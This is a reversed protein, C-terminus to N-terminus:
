FGIFVRPDVIHRIDSVYTEHGLTVISCDVQGVSISRSIELTISNDSLILKKCSNKFTVYLHDFNASLQQCDSGSDNKGLAPNRVVDAEFRKSYIADQEGERGRLSQHLFNIYRPQSFFNVVISVQKTPVYCWRKRRTM